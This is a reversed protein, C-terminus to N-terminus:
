LNSFKQFSIPIDPSVTVNLTLSKLRDLQELAARRSTGTSLKYQDAVATHALGREDLSVQSALELLFVHGGQAHFHVREAERCISSGDGEVHPVSRALLLEAAEAVAVVDLALAGDDHKVDRRADGVFVHGGPVLVQHAHALVYGDHEAAVLDVDLVSLDFRLGDGEMALLVQLHTTRIHGSEQGRGTGM